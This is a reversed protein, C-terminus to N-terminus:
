SSGGQSKFPSRLSTLVKQDFAQVAVRMSPIKRLASAGEPGLADRVLYSCDVTWALERQTGLVDHAGIVSRFEAPTMSRVDGMGCASQWLAILSEILALTVKADGSVKGERLEDLIRGVKAAAQFAESVIGDRIASANSMATLEAAIKANGMKVVRACYPGAAAAIRDLHAEDGATTASELQALAWRPGELPGQSEVWQRAEASQLLDAVSQAEGRLSKPLTAQKMEYVTADRAKILTDRAKVAIKMAGDIVSGPARQQQGSENLVFRDAELIVRGSAIQTQSAIDLSVRQMTAPDLGMAGSRQAEAQLLAVERDNATQLGAANRLYTVHLAKEALAMGEFVDALANRCTRLRKRLAPVGVAQIKAELSRVENQRLELRARAEEARARLEPPLDTVDQFRIAM